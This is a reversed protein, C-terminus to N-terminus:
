GNQIGKQRAWWERELMAYQYESGWSGKFWVNEIQHGERRLGLRELVNVSPYNEDDCRATVRHLNLSTFLYELLRGVAENAYGQHQWTRALTFAIEAQQPDDALRIFACDGIIGGVAKRELAFQFWKGAVGPQITSMEAIFARAQALTYPADWGQYHAVLPDSRYASFAEADQERLPRLVMRPTELILM